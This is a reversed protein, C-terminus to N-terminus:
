VSRPIQRAGIERLGQPECGAFRAMRRQGERARVPERALDDRQGVIRGRGFQALKLMERGHPRAIAPNDLGSPVRTAQIVQLAVPQGLGRRLELRRACRTLRQAPCQGGLLAYRSPGREGPWPARERSAIRAETVGVAGQLRALSRLAPVDDIHQVRSGADLVVPRRKGDALDPLQKLVDEALRSGAQHVHGNGAGHEHEDNDAGVPRLDAHQRQGVAPVVFRRYSARKLTSRAHDPHDLLVSHQRPQGSLQLAEDRRTCGDDPAQVAHQLM